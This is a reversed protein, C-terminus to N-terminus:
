DEETNTKVIFQSTDVPETIKDIIQLVFLNYSECEFADFYYLSLFPSIESAEFQNDM